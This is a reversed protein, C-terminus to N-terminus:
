FILSDPNELQMVIYAAKLLLKKPTPSATFGSMLLNETDYPYTDLHKRWAKKIARRIMREITGWESECRICVESYVDNLVISTQGRSFAEVMIVISECAYTGGASTEPIGSQRLIRKAFSRRTGLLEATDAAGGAREIQIELMSRELSEGSRGKAMFCRLLMCHSVVADPTTPRVIFDNVSYQLAASRVMELCGQAIFIIRIDNSCNQRIDKLTDLGDFGPMNYDIVVIDPKNNNVAEAANFGNKRTFAINLNAEIDIIRIIRTLMDHDDMFIGVKTNIDM